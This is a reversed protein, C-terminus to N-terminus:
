KSTSKIYEIVWSIEKENLPIMSMVGNEYGVSKKAQPAKISERIYAEDVVGESGDTFARKQGFQGYLPPGVLAEAKDLHHCANCSKVKMVKLGRAALDMGEYQKMPDNSLWEDFDEQSMVKLKALMRSHDKGCYETCYVQYEGEKDAEFWLATYRGPIVDQKIRMSPIYFSHLVDSSTMILKIPKNVPVVFEDTVMKGSKYQFDWGWQRGFVHVEFANEPYTKVQNFLVWGWVFVIMFIIFPIFSWLFELLNNHSIYPVVDNDTKRKYKLVFFVMGGIVLICSILSAILLFNYLKDVSAAYKNAQVPMYQAAFAQTLTLTATIWIFLKKM